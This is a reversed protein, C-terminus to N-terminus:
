KTLLLKISKNFSNSQISCVYVGSTLKSADFDVKYYGASKQENVLTAVEKGLVDYVKITVMGDKPLQYNITTAPNFPNPYNGIAYESPVESEAKVMALDNNQMSAGITCYVQTNAGGQSWTSNVSYYATIGYELLIDQKWVGLWYEYDTYSEVGSNVTAIVEDASWVGNQFVHRHIRYQTVNSNPNDTWNIEVPQGVTTGFSITPPVARATYQATYTGHADPTITSSVTGGEYTWNSFLYEIGNSIYDSAAANIVNQEVVAETTPSSKGVDNIYITSGAQFTLSCLKRLGAVVRTNLDQSLISYSSSQATSFDFTGYYDSISTWKSTNTESTNWVRYYNDYDQEIAGISVSGVSSAIRAPSTTNGNANISGGGFNNEVSIRFYCNVTFEVEQHIVPDYCNLTNCNISLLKFKVTHSGPTFSITFYSPTSPSHCLDSSIVSNDVSVVLCPYCLGNLNQYSFNYTGNVSASGYPITVSTPGSYTFSQAFGLQFFVLMFLMCIKTRLM